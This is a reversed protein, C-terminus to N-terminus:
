KPDKKLHEQLAKDGYITYWDSSDDKMGLSVDKPQDNTDEDMGDDSSEAGSTVDIQSVPALVPKRKPKPALAGTGKTGRHIDEGTPPSPGEDLASYLDYDFNYDEDDVGGADNTSRRDGQDDSYYDYDNGEQQRIREDEKETRLEINFSPQPRRRPTYYRDYESERQRRPIRDTQHVSRPVERRPYTPQLPVKNSLIPQHPIERSSVSPVSQVSPFGPPEFGNSSPYRVERGYTQQPAINQYTSGPNNVANAILQAQELAAQLVYPDTLPNYATLDPTQYATVPSYDPQPVVAVPNLDYSYPPHVVPQPVVVQPEIHTYTPPAYQEQAYQYSNPFAALSSITPPPATIGLPSYGLAPSQAQINVQSPSNAQALQLRRQSLNRKLQRIEQLRKLLQTRRSPDVKGGQSGLRRQRPGGQVGNAGRRGSLLQRVGARRAFFRKRQRGRNPRPDKPPVVRVEHIVDGETDDDDDLFSGYDDEDGPLDLDFSSYSDDDDMYYDDGSKGEPEGRIEDLSQPIQNGYSRWEDEAYDEVSDYVKKEEYGYIVQDNDGGVATKDVVQSAAASNIVEYVWDPYLANTSTGKSSSVDGDKIGNARSSSAVIETLYTGSLEGLKEAESSLSSSEYNHRSPGGVCITPGICCLAVSLAVFGLRLSM